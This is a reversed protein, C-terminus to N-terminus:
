KGAGLEPLNHGSTIGGGLLRIGESSVCACICLHYIINIDLYPSNIKSQSKVVSCPSSYLNHPFTVHSTSSIIYKSHTLDNGKVHCKISFSSCM